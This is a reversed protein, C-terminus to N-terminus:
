TLPEVEYIRVGPHDELALLEFVAAVRRSARIALPGAGNRSKASTLISHLGSSDIFTVGTLDLLIEPEASMEDLADRLLPATALDLEGVVKIGNESELAAISFETTM